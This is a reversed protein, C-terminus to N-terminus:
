EEGEDEAERRAKDEHRSTRTLEYNVRPPPAWNRREAASPADGTDDSSKRSPRSVEQDSWGKWSRSKSDKGADSHHAQAPKRSPPAKSPVAFPPTPGPRGPAPHIQQRCPWSEIKIIMDPQVDHSTLITMTETQWIQGTEDNERYFKDIDWTILINDKGYPTM